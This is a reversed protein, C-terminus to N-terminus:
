RLGGPLRSRECGAPLEEVSTSSDLFLDVFLIVLKRRDFYILSQTNLHTPPAPM